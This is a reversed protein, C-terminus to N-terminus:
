FLLKNETACLTFHVPLEERQQRYFFCYPYSESLTARACRWERNAGCIKQLRRESLMVKSRKSGRNATCTMGAYGKYNDYDNYLKFFYIIKGLIYTKNFIM